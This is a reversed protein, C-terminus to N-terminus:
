YMGANQVRQDPRYDYQTEVYEMEAGNTYGILGTNAWGYRKTENWLM